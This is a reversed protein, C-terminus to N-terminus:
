RSCYFLSFTRTLSLGFSSIILRPKSSIISQITPVSDHSMNTNAAMNPKAPPLCVDDGSGYYLACCGEKKKKDPMAQGREELYYV